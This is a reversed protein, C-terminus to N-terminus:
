ELERKELLGRSIILEKLRENMPTLFKPMPQLLKNVVHTAVSGAVSAAVAIAVAAPFVAPVMGTEAMVVPYAYTRVGEKLIVAEKKDLNIKRCAVAEDFDDFVQRAFAEDSVLLGVFREVDEKPM